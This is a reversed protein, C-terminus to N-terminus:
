FKASSLKKKNKSSQLLGMAVNLVHANDVWLFSSSALNKGSDGSEAFCLSGNVIGWRLKDWTYYSQVASSFANKTTVTIGEDEVTFDGFAFKEGKALGELMESLLRKGVAKWLRDTLHEYFDKQKTKIIFEKDSTGFMTRYVRKPFVGGRRLDVGWRLRTIFRLPYLEGCWSFGGPAIEFTKRFPWMGFSCRFDIEHHWTKKDEM